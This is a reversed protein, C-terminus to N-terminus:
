GASTFPNDFRVTTIGRRQLVQGFQLIKEATEYAFERQMRQALRRPMFEGPGAADGAQHHKGFRMQRAM